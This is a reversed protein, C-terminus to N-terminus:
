SVLYKRDTDKKVEALSFAHRILEFDQGQGDVSLQISITFFYINPNLEINFRYTDYGSDDLQSGLKTSGFPTAGIPNYTTNDFRYSASDGKLTVEHQGTVGDEDFLITCLIETNQKMRLELYIEDVRKQHQPAGFNEAWTRVTAGFGSTNDTKDETVEYTASNVSSHFHVVYKGQDEDYVTTWDNVFWGVYPTDWRVPLIRGNSDISQRTLDGRMVTDNTASNVDAKFALWVTNDVCIASAEDFVGKDFIPQVPDSLVLYQPENNATIGSLLVLKKDPTIFVVGLPTSITSKQNTAGLTIGKDDAPLLTAYTSVDIRSSSQEFTLMKILRKKFAIVAKNLKAYGVLPGGFEIEKSGANGDADPSAVTWDGPDDLKSFNWVSPKSELRAHLRSDHACAVQGKVASLGTMEDPAQVVLDGAMVGNAVPDPTVGTLTDTGEGGTYSYEVGKIVVKKTAAYFGEATWTGSSKSITNITVGSVFTYAGNWRYWNETGNCFWTHSTADATKGLNGYGFELGSTFGDKLLSWDTSVGKLWYYLKTGFAKLEFQVGARTEFVWARKVPLVGTDESGVPVYGNRLSPLNINGFKVNQGVVFAGRNQSADLRNEFGKYIGNPLSDPFCVWKNMDTSEDVKIQDPM